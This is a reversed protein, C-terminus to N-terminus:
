DDRLVARRQARERAAHSNRRKKALGLEVAPFESPEAAHGVVVGSADSPIRRRDLGPVIKEAFWRLEATEAGVSIGINPRQQVLVHEAGLYLKDATIRSGIVDDQGHLAAFDVAQASQRPARDLRPM